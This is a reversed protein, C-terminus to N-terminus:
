SNTRAMRQAIRLDDGLREAGATVSASSFLGGGGTASGGGAGVLRTGPHLYTPDFRDSLTVSAPRESTQIYDTIETWVVLPNADGTTEYSVSRLWVSKDKDINRTMSLVYMDIPDINGSVHQVTTAGGQLYRETSSHVGVLDGPGMEKTWADYILSVSVALDPTKARKATAVTMYDVRYDRLGGGDVQLFGGYDGGAPDLITDVDSWTNSTLDVHVADDAFDRDGFAYIDTAVNSIDRTVSLVAPINLRGEAGVAQSDIDSIIVENQAFIDVHYGVRCTMVSTASGGPLMKYASSNVGFRDNLYSVRDDAFTRAATRPVPDSSGGGSNGVGAAGWTGIYIGTYADTSDIDIGHIGALGDAFDAAWDDVAAFGSDYEPGVGNPQQWWWSMEWGSCGSSGIATMPGMFLATDLANDMTTVRGTGYGRLDNVQPRSEFVVLSAGDQIEKQVSMPLPKSWKISWAGCGQLVQTIAM